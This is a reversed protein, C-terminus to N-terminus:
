RHNFFASGQLLSNFSKRKGEDGFNQQIEHRYLGANAEVETEGGALREYLGAWLARREEGASVGLAHGGRLFTKLGKADRDFMAEIQRKTPPPKSEEKAPHASESSLRALLTQDVLPDVTSASM